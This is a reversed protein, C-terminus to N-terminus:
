ILSERGQNWLWVTEQSHQYDKSALVEQTTQYGILVKSMVTLGLAVVILQFMWFCCENCLFYKQSSSIENENPEVPM